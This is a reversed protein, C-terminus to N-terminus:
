VLPYLQKYLQGDSIQAGQRILNFLEQNRETTFTKKGLQWAVEESLLATTLWTFGEQTTFDKDTNLSRIILCSIFTDHVHFLFLHNKSIQELYTAQNLAGEWVLDSFVDLESEALVPKEAKLKEWDAKDISQAALFRAFEHHLEAFQEKTLRHYKM